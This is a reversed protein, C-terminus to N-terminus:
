GPWEGATMGTFVRDLWEKPKIERSLFLIDHSSALTLADALPCGQHEDCNKEPSGEATTDGM